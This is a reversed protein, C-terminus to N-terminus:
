GIPTDTTSRRMGRQVLAEIREAAIAPFNLEPPLPDLAPAPVPSMADSLIVFKSLPVGRAEAAEALDELTALVCHSSAQGFVYVEDFGILHEFSAEDFGGLVEGALESVEPRLVSYMETLPARGKSVLRPATQRAFAHFLMAEAMIPSLAHSLGGLLGHYPWITLVYKGSAELAELYELVPAGEMRARWRGSRVEEARIATFPPPSRGEVDEWFAPHFVQRVEHTDLSFVLHTLRPLNRLIWSAARATDEIAGPVFLGGDPHCFSVQVDIGLGCVRRTDADAPAIAHQVRWDRARDALLGAREVWLTGASTADFHEPLPLTM